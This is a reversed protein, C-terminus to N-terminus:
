MCLLFMLKVIPMKLCVISVMEVTSGKGTAQAYASKLALAYEEMAVAVLAFLQTLLFHMPNIATPM